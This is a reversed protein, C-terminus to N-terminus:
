AVRIVREGRVELGAESRALERMFGAKDEPSILIFKTKGDRRYDVRLRDLSLAPSSLPNSTPRVENISALPIRWRLFGSRINLDSSTIQYYLPYLLGLLVAGTVASVLIMIWGVQAKGNPALLNYIGWVFQLAAIVAVVAIIAVLWWDKKSRYIM